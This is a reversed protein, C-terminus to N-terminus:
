SKKSPRVPLLTLGWFLAALVIGLSLKATYPIEKVPSIFAETLGAIVLWPVVGSVVIFAEGAAARLKKGLGGSYPPVWARGFLVGSFTAMVIVSLELPGHGSIFNVMTEDFGHSAAFGLMTGLMLGNYAMMLVGGVGFVAGAAFCLLSVKINHLALFLGSLAPKDSLSSFWEKNEIMRELFPVSVIAQAFDPLQRAVIWGLMTCGGFIGVLLAALELNAHVIERYELWWAGLSMKDKSKARHLYEQLVSAAYNEFELLEPHDPPLRTRALYLTHSLRDIARILAFQGNLGHEGSDEKARLFAEEAGRRCDRIKDLFVQSM